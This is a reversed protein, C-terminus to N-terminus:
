NRRQYHDADEERLLHFFRKHIGGHFKHDPSKQFELDGFFSQLIESSETTIYREMEESTMDPQMPKVTAITVYIMPVPQNSVTALLQIGDARIFSCNYDRQDPPSAMWETPFKSWGLVSQACYEKIPKM